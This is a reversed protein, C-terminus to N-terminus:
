GKARHVAWLAAVGLMMGLLGTLGVHTMALPFQDQSGITALTQKGVILLALM